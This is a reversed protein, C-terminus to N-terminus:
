IVLSLWALILTSGGLPALKGAERAGFLATAYCAGSFVVTGTMFLTGSLVPRPLQPSVAVMVSHVLHLRNGNDFTKKLAPDADSMRHAGYAAAGVASAGSLGALRILTTM